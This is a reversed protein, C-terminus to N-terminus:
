REHRNRWLEWRERLRVGLGLFPPPPLRQPRGLSEMDAILPNDVGCAMDAALLGGITSKTVGTANCCVAAYVDSAVRGFGPASNRSLTVFGAWCHDLTVNPLMPFRARFAQEHDRRVAAYHAPGVRFDPRYDIHQRILIRHDQTYRMTCGAFANAPTVGWDNEGGLAAHEVPTLPRTLSAFAAFVLLQGRFYGFMEAFGNTCLILKPAYLSGQSTELRVGNDHAIRLVPSREHLTVNAPLSAALGRTLAAPNMLMCGPTYVAAHYYPTGIERRLAAADLWRYPEGLADLERAFPELVRKRGRESVATHYKGRRSWQCDIGAARVAADLHDIAARSLRMFRHSGELEALSSGVNHPLDIAFGSNRASANEGVERAELLVICDHQRNEALRRAAALGAYGAGVVAWDARQEGVLPPQPARPPLIRNWGNTADNVPLVAINIM